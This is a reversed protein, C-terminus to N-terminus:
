VHLGFTDPAALAIGTEHAAVLAGGVPVAVEDWDDLGLLMALNRWPLNVGAFRTRAIGGSMRPNIELLRPDEGDLDAAKFQVNVLGTLGFLDVAARAIGFIPGDVEIEQVRGRKHRAVGVVLRGADCVCDLSWEPGPLYEMVLLRVPGAATAIADRVVAPAIRRDDGAMLADLLTATDDLLWFGHGFVGERPKICAPLRLRRLEDTAADFAAPSDVARTLPTPIAAARALGSFASKDAITALREADAPLVLRTTEPFLQSHRAIAEQRGQVMFLDVSLQDCIGACWAAYAADGSPARDLAPELFAYDAAELVSAHVDAHSALLRLNGIGAAQAGERILLLADRVVSYGQNFWVNRM